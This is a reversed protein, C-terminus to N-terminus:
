DGKRIAFSLDAAMPLGTFRSMLRLARCFKRAIRSAPSFTYSNPFDQFSVSWEERGNRLPSNAHPLLRVPHIGTRQLIGLVESVTGGRIGNRLLAPWAANSAIRRSLRPGLRRLIAGPVFNALPLGTTHHEFLSFRYPTESILMVGGMRLCAWLRRLLVPRERPLLHEIVANVNIIDFQGIGQPLDGPDPSVMCTAASLGYFDLRARAAEANKADLEVGTIKAKPFIRALAVISAGCGCGFDLIDPAKWQGADLYGATNARIKKEVYGSEDRVIEDCVWALGKAKAITRILDDSYATVTEVIPLFSASDRLTVRVRKAGSSESLIELRGEPFELMM